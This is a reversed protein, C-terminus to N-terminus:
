SRYWKCMENEEYLPYLNLEPEQGVVLLAEYSLQYLMAGTDRLGNPEFGTLVKKRPKRQLHKLQKM